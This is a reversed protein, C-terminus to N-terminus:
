VPLTSRTIYKVAQIQVLDMQICVDHCISCLIAGIAALKYQCIVTSMICLIAGIAALQYQCIVTSM